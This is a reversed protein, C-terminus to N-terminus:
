KESSVVDEMVTKLPKMGMREYFAQAGPNLTWVNLTIHYCGQEKAFARVHDYLRKGIQQGRITEDVCIDDIYLSRMSVRINDDKVEEMQCFAYGLVTDNEDVAVFVPREDDRFIETLEADTYKRGANFIDPRGLHHILNVQNLLKDVGPIDKAVARRIKM